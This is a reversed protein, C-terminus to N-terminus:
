KDPQVLMVPCRAHKIVQQAVSGMLWRALGTRGHTSMVVLSIGEETEVYDCIAQAPNGGRIIVERARLGERRLRNRLAVLREQMQEYPQDAIRQQGALAWQDAYDGGKPQYIHLLILEADHLRALEAARPIASESWRSGDLPVVVRQYMPRVLLLPVPFSTSPGSWAPALSGACCPRAARHQVDGRRQHARLEIVKHLAEALDHARRCVAIYARVDAARLEQRLGELYASIWTGPRRARRETCRQAPRRKRGQCTSWISCSWTPTTSQRWTPVCLAGRIGGGVLRGAAGSGPQLHPRADNM